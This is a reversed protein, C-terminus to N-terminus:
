SILCKRGKVCGYYTGAMAAVIAGFRKTRAESNRYPDAKNATHGPSTARM